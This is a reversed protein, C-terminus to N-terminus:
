GRKGAVWCDSDARHIRGRGPHFRDLLGQSVWMQVNLEGTIVLEAHSCSEQWGPVHGMTLTKYVNGFSNMGMKRSRGQIASSPQQLLLM